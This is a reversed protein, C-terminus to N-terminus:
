RSLQLFVVVHKIEDATETQKQISDATCSDLGQRGDCVAALEYVSVTARMSTHTNDSHVTRTSSEYVVGNSHFRM